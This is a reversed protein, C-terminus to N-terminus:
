LMGAYTHEQLHPAPGLTPLYVDHVSLRICPISHTADVVMSYVADPRQEHLGLLAATNLTSSDGGLAHHLRRTDPIPQRHTQTTHM